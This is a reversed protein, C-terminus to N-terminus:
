LGSLGTVNDGPAIGHERDSLELIFRSEEPAGFIPCPSESCPELRQGHIVRHEEDIWFVRLPIRMNKMWVRHKGPAPYLLLMGRDPALSQRHMLGLRRQEPTEAVEVLYREAGIRLEIEQEIEGSAVRGGAFCLLFLGFRALNRFNRM